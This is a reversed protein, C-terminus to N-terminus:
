PAASQSLTTRNGASDYTYTISSGDAYTVTLLRGNADYTYTDTGATAFTWALLGIAAIVAGVIRMYWGRNSKTM